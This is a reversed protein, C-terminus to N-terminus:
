NRRKEKAIREKRRWEGTRIRKILTQIMQSFVPVVPEFGAQDM